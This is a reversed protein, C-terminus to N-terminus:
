RLPLWRGYTLMRWVWELPGFRFWRLWLISLAIQVLFTDLAVLEIQWLGLRLGLGFGIGYFLVVGVVSQGIYNTLAMRGSAALLRFSVAKPHKKYLLSLIFIYCFGLPIVSVAYLLSHITKGWPHNNTASLAYGYSLVLSLLLFCSLMEKLPLEEIRAYLRRKGILYGIIFLGVVKPLRHGSLLEWSREITGQMLFAFMESYSKADRLWTAFNDENIGLENARRWWDMYPRKAYEIGHFEILADLGVPLLILGVALGLLAKDPLKVFLTLILGGTAYVVLIDGSWIFLRHLLGIVMLILMRRIFLKRGHKILIMSFGVGFLLSFITYFKGDILMYQAFHVWRDVEATPMAAQQEANLFTWLGFEPFNALAIGLLAFGRLADLIVYRQKGTTPLNNSDKM